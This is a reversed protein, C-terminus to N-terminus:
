VQSARLTQQINANTYNSGTKIQRHFKLLYYLVHFMVRRLQLLITMHDCRYAYSLTESQMALIVVKKIKGAIELREESMDGMWVDM